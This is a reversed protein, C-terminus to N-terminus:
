LLHKLDFVQDLVSLTGVTRFQSRLVGPFGKDLKPLFNRVLAREQVKLLEDQLM